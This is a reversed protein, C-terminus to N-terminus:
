WPLYKLSSIGREQEDRLSCRWFLSKGGRGEGEQEKAAMLLRSPFAAHAHVFQGRQWFVQVLDSM